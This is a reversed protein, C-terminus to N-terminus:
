AVKLGVPQFVKTVPLNFYNAILYAHSLTPYTKDGELTYITNESIDLDQAMKIVTIDRSTRLSKMHNIIQIKRQTSM